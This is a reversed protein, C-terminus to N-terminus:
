KKKLARMLRDVIRGAAREIDEPRSSKPKEYVSWLVTGNRGDVLFVAGKSRQGGGFRVVPEDKVEAPGEDKDKDEPKEAEEGAPKPEPPPPYMEALRREFDEGLRDTFVADAKAPDTVVQFVDASTLRHALFQDLGGTMPLLYVTRVTTLDAGAAPLACSAALLFLAAAKMDSVM